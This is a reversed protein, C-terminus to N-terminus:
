KVQFGDLPKLLNIRMLDMSVAALVLLVASSVCQNSGVKEWLM